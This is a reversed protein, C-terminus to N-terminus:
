GRGATTASGPEVRLILHETTRTVVQYEPDDPPLRLVVPPVPMGAAVRAADPEGLWEWPNVLATRALFAASAPRHRLRTGTYAFELERWISPAHFMANDTGLLVTLGLREMSRLDPQRGFLANSRPCVAVAVRADRVAVLDDPAAKALHVVLDPRPDLYSEPPERRAESAHLGYKKGRARCARAVVARTEPTEELAGSLGVGDTVDLLASLEHRDVPRALPRGLIVPRVGVSRAVDRFLLAGPRGEERFDIDAAVGDRRMRGFAGRLAARKTAPSASALLRFKYGLPPRVLRAVPGRPPERVSVADGLHTHGNVPSPVVIGRVKRDRGRASDTGLSGVEVVRGARIRVYGARPGDADLIAGEVLM